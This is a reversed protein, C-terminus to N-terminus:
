EAFYGKSNKYDEFFMDCLGFFMEVSNEEAPVIEEITKYWMFSSMQYDPDINDVIWKELWKGFWVCFYRDLEDTEYHHNAGCNGMIVYFIYDLRVEDVYMHPRKKMSQILQEIHM